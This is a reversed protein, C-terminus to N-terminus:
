FIHGIHQQIYAATIRQPAKPAPRRDYITSEFSVNALYFLLHCVPYIPFLWM